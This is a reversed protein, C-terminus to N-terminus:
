PGRTGYDVEARGKTEEAGIERRVGAGWGAGGRRAPGDADVAAGQFSVARQAGM